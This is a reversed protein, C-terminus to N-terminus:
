CSQKEKHQLLLARTREMLPSHYIEGLLEAKNQLGALHRIFQGQTSNLLYYHITIEVDLPYANEFYRFGGQEPPWKWKWCDQNPIVDTSADWEELIAHTRLTNRLLIIGANNHNKEELPHSCNEAIKDRAMLINKHAPLLPFLEEQVALVFSYFVADADLFLLFDCATLQRRLHAVKEWYHWRDRRYQDHNELREVVYQYGHYQCYDRNIPEVFQSFWSDPAALDGYVLQCVKLPVSPLIVSVNPLDTPRQEVWWQKHANWSELTYLLGSGGHLIAASNTVDNRHPDDSQLRYDQINQYDWLGAVLDKRHDICFLDPFYTLCISYLHQDDDIWAAGYDSYLRQLIGARPCGEVLEQRIEICHQQIELLVDIEGAVFGANLRAWDYGMADVVAQRLYDCHSPHLACYIDKNFIAKGSYLSNFKALITDVSDIFATDRGDLIFVYKKGENQLQKLTERMTEIKHHYFGRWPEGKGYVILPVGQEQATSRIVETQQEWDPYAAVTVFATNELTAPSREVSQQIEPEQSAMGAVEAFGNGTEAHREFSFRNPISYVPYQVVPKGFTTEPDNTGVLIKRTFYVGNREGSIGAAQMAGLLGSDCRFEHKALEWRWDAHNVLVCQAGSFAGHEIQCWYDNVFVPKTEPNDLISGWGIVAINWDEPLTEGFPQWQQAFDPRVDADDELWMLPRDVDVTLQQRFRRSPPDLVVKGYDDPNGPREKVLTWEDIGLNKLTPLLRDIRDQRCAAVYVRINTLLNDRM